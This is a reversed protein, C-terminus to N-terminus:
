QEEPEQKPGDKQGQPENQPTEAKGPTGGRAPTNEPKEPSQPATKQNGQDIKVKKWWDPDNAARQKEEWFETPRPRFHPQEALMEMMKVAVIQGLTNMEHFYKQVSKSLYDASLGDMYEVLTEAAAKWAERKLIEDKNQWARTLSDETIKQPDTLRDRQEQSLGDLLGERELAKNREAIQMAFDAVDQVLQEPLLSAVSVNLAQAVKELILPTVASSDRKTISYLTNLSVGSEQSLQKITKKQQKLITKIKSGTGM